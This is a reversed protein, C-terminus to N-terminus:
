FEERRTSMERLDYIKGEKIACPNLKFFDSRFRFMFSGIMLMIPVHGTGYQNINISYCRYSAPYIM